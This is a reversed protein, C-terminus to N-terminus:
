ERSCRLGAGAMFRLWGTSSAGSSGRSSGASSASTAAAKPAAASSSRGGVSAERKSSVGLAPSPPTFAFPSSSM